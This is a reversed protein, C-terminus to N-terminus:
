KLVNASGSDSSDDGGEDVPDVPPPPPPVPTDEGNCEGDAESWFQGTACACAHPNTKTAERCELCSRPCESYCRKCGQSCALCNKGEADASKGDKCLTCVAADGDCNACDPVSCATCVDNVLGYGSICNKATTGDEKCEKMGEPTGM